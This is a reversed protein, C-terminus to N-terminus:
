ALERNLYAQVFLPMRAAVIDGRTAAVHMRTLEPEEERAIHDAIRALAAARDAKVGLLKLCAVMQRDFIV